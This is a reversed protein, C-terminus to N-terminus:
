RYRVPFDATLGAAGIDLAKFGLSWAPSDPRLRFDKGAADVFRPDAAVTRQHPRMKGPLLAMSAAQGKLREVFAASGAPDGVAYFLNFDADFQGLTAGRMDLLFKVEAGSSYVINRQYRGSAEKGFM